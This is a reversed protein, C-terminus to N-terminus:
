IEQDTPTLELSPILCKYIINELFPHLYGIANKTQMGVTIYKLCFYIAAKPIFEVNYKSIM